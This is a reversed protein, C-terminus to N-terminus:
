EWHTTGSDSLDQSECGQKSLNNLMVDVGWKNAFLEDKNFELVEINSYFGFWKIAEDARSVVWDSLCASGHCRTECYKNYVKLGEPPIYLGVKQSRFKPKISALTLKFTILYASIKDNSSLGYKFTRAQSEGTDDDTYVTMIGCGSLQTPENENQVKVGCFLKFSM